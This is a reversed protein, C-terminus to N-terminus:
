GIVNLETTWDSGFRHTARAVYPLLNPSGVLSVDRGDVRPIVDGVRFTMDPMALTLRSQCLSEEQAALRRALALLLASDDRIVGASPQYYISSVHVRDMRAWPARIIRRRSSRTKAEVSLPADATITGTIRVKALDALVAQVFPGPLADDSLYVACEDDALLVHGAYRRWSVGADLSVEVVVGLNQGASNRTVCSGMPRGTPQYFAEADLSACDFRELNYPAGDYRGTENLVWRRM